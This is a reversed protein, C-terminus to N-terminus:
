DAPASLEVVAEQERMKDFLIKVVDNRIQSLAPEREVRFPERRMQLKSKRAVTADALAPDVQLQALRELWPM